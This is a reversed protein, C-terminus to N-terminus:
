PGLCCWFEVRFPHKYDSCHAAADHEYGDSDHYSSQEQEESCSLIGSLQTPVCTKRPSARIPLMGVFGRDPEM